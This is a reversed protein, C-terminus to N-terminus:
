MAKNAMSTSCDNSGGSGSITSCISKSLANRGLSECEHLVVGGLGSVHIIILLINPRVLWDQVAGDIARYGRHHM